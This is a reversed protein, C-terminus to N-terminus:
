RVGALLQDYGTMQPQPRDYRTLDGLEAPSLTVPQRPQTLLCKVSSADTCGLALAKDAASRLAPWGHAPALLLLDVMARTGAHKGLREQWQALLRDFSQPWLGLARWQALPRSGPLASPKKDFVCLYHEINYVEEGRAYCREHLAVRNGSHWVEISSPLARVQAKTGVRLPTSYWVNHDKVCGKADVQGTHTEALDFGESPMPLLHTREELLLVGVPATRDGIRRSQDAICDALLKCNLAELSQAAPVPVLHNRRFTGAEGEVGGKEQPQAAGCFEANFGWHSRFAIFRTHEERTHGRFVKKVASSLNDYRLMQFVGGFYEFALEHAEFFAQQTAHLYARHFAGGSKMSRMSFVQHKLLEGGREVYAEYWDVQAEAAWDYCQPVCIERGALGLAWKRERVYARVTSEAVSHQSQEECLRTWIRHATHRQKRPASKDATLVAEIFPKVPDLSPCPRVTTKREPPVASAIAQRVQRRHVGFLRAVGQVTGVGHEYERRLQEFLEV